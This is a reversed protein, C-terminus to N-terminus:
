GDNEMWHDCDGSRVAGSSRLYFLGHGGTGKDGDEREGSGFGALGAEGLHHSGGDASVDHLEHVGVHVLVGTLRVGDVDVGALHGRGGGPSGAAGHCSDGADAASSGRARSLTGEAVHTAASTHEGGRFGPPLPVALDIDGLLAVRDGRGEGGRSHRREDHSTSM